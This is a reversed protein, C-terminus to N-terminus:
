KITVWIIVYKIFVCEKKWELLLFFSL